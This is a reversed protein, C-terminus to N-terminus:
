ACFSLEAFFCGRSINGTIAREMSVFQDNPTATELVKWRTDGTSERALVELRWPRTRYVSRCWNTAAMLPEM